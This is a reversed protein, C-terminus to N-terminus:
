LLTRQQDIVEKIPGSAERVTGPVDDLLRRARSATEVIAHVDDLTGGLDPRGTVDEVTLEGEWRALKPLLTVYANLRLSIDALTDTAQGVAALAGADEGVSLEALQTLATERASFVTEIPHARAFAEVDGRRNGFLQHNPYL